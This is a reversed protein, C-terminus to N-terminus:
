EGDQDVKGTINDNWGWEKARAKNVADEIAQEAEAETDYVFDTMWVTEFTQEAKSIVRGVYANWKGNRRASVRFLDGDNLPPQREKEPM